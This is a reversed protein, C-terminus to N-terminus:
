WYRQNPTHNLRHSDRQVSCQGLKHRGSQHHVAIRLDRGVRFELDSHYSPQDRWVFPDYTVAVADGDTDREYLKRHLEDRAFHRASDRICM